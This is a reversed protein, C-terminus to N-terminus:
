GAQRAPRLIAPDGRGLAAGEQSLGHQTWAEIPGGREIAPLVLKGVKALMATDSWPANGVFHLLSQHKAAVGAPATVAALPEVSKRALPMMLGVCYDHM